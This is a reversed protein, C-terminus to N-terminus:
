WGRTQDDLRTIRGPLDRYLGEARLYQHCAMCEQTMAGYADTVGALDQARARVALNRTTERFRESLAGYSVTDHVFWDSEESM